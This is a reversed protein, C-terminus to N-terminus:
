SIKGTLEILKLILDRNCEMRRALPQSSPTETCCSFKCGRHSMLDEASGDHYDFVVGDKVKTNGYDRNGLVTFYEKGITILPNEYRRDGFSYLFFEEEVEDDEHTSAFILPKLEKIDGSIARVEDAVCVDKEHVWNSNCNLGKHNFRENRGFGWPNVLPYIVLNIRNEEAAGSILKYNEFIALPPALEEGHCGAMIVLLPVDTPVNKSLKVLQFTEDPLDILDVKFYPKIKSLRNLLQQYSPHILGM